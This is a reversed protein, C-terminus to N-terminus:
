SEPYHQSAPGAVGVHLALSKLTGVALGRSNTHFGLFGCRVTGSGRVNNRATVWPLTPGSSSSPGRGPRELDRM